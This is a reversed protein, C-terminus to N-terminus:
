QHTREPCLQRFAPDDTAEILVNHARGLALWSPGTMPIMPYRFSVFADRNEKLIEGVPPFPSDTSSRQDVAQVIARTQEDLDLYLKWLDHGFAHRGTRLYALFKLALEVSLARLIIGGSECAAQVSARGPERNASVSYQQWLGELLHSANGLM